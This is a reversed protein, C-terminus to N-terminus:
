RASKVEPRCLRLGMRDVLVLWHTRARTSTQGPHERRTPAQSAPLSHLRRHQEVLAVDGYDARDLEAPLAVLVLLRDTQGRVRLVAHDRRQERECSAREVWRRGSRRPPNLSMGIRKNPCCSGHTARLYLSSRAM